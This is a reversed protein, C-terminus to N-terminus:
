KGRGNRWNDRKLRDLSFGDRRKGTERDWCTNCDPCQWAVQCDMRSDCVAIIRSFWKANGYHEQHEPPIPQGQWSSECAPCNQLLSLNITM